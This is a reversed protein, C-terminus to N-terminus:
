SLSKIFAMVADALRQPDTDAHKIIGLYYRGLSFILVNEGSLREICCYLYRGFELDDTLSDCYKGSTVIASTLSIADEYNESVVFGDNRVLVYNNVGEINGIRAFDKVSAM